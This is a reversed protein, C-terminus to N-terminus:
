FGLGKMLFVALVSAMNHMIHVTISPVLSGTKEYLYALLIGLVMIPVLGVWHVHLLSFVFATTLISWFVGIKKKLAKYMFGRFFIEEMIPGFIGAFITSYILVPVNKEKIFMDVIPQVPPKLKFTSIIVATVMLTVFLIPIISLYGVIGYFVNKLWNKLTVGISELSQNYTFVVFNLVFIIGAADLVTAEFIFRFNENKFLGFAKSMKGEFILFLYAFTYFMLIVKLVDLLNWKADQYDITSRLLGRNKKFENYLAFDLVVGGLFFFIISFNFAIALLYLPPNERAIKMFKEQREKLVKEDNFDIRYIEKQKQQNKPKTKGPKEGTFILSTVGLVFVLMIIYPWNSKFINKIGM